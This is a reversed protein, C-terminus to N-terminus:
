SLHMTIIVPNSIIIAFYFCFGWVVVVVLGLRSIVQVDM